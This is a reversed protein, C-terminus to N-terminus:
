TGFHMKVKIHGNRSTEHKSALNASVIYEHM